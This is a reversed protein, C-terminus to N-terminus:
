SVKHAAPHPLPGTGDGVTLEAYCTAAESPPGRRVPLADIRLTRINGRHTALTLINGVRVPAAARDVPRGDIRLHGQAAMAQAFSRTKVIRAFWLFKDLRM